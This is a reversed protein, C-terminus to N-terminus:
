GGNRPPKTEGKKNEKTRCLSDEREKPKGRRICRRRGEERRGERGGWCSSPVLKKKEQGMCKLAKVM